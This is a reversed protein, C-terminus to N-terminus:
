AGKIDKSLFDKGRVLVVVRHGIHFTQVVDIHEVEKIIEGRCIAVTNNGSHLFNKLSEKNDIVPINRGMYFVAAGSYSEKPDFLRIESGEVAIKKCYDFLPEYSKFRNFIPTIKTDFSIFLVILAAITIKFFGFIDKRNLRQYAWIGLFLGPVSIIMCILFPQKYYLGVVCFGFSVAMIIWSLIYAPISFLKTPSIENEIFRGVATGVFLAAAPYLPLLYIGRKGESISLLLFPVIFWVMFFLSSFQTTKKQIERIHYVLAMPLFLVWPLFHVPANVIYYYFPNIHSNHSGSFRGFNNTWVVEYIADWGLRNYLLWLWIAFPIFCLVAGTLLFAWAKLDFRKEIVLWVFLASIPVAIGVLGKTLVACSLSIVFAIYWLFRKPLDKVAKYFFVVAGTTFLCLMMDILCRRGLSWYEASTALVFGAMFASFASFGMSRALFFVLAVGLIAALASPLRATYSNEKLLNFVSSAVWYYLPPKELFPEGNLRPVLRDGTRGMEAIIGAERPEDPNWLHRSGLGALFILGACLMLYFFYTRTKKLNNDDPVHVTQLSPLRDDM